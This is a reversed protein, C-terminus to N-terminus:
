PVGLAGLAKLVAARRRESVGLSTGDRLLVAYHGDAGRRLERVYAVNV